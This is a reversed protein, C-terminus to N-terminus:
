HPLSYESPRNALIASVVQRTLSSRVVGILSNPELRKFDLNGYATVITQADSREWWDNFVRFPIDFGIFKFPILVYENEAM